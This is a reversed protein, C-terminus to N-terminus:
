DSPEVSHAVARRVEDTTRFIAPQTLREVSGNSHLLYSTPLVPPAQLAAQLAGSPDAVSPYRVDLDALLTLADEARDQVNIGIVPITDPQETYAALVPIEERCPLCWSAWLNLLAPRGALAAALNVTGPAGLCPVIVGTLPGSPVAGPRPAPCPQLDARQRLPALEADDPPPSDATTTVGIQPPGARAPTAPQPSVAHPWLALVGAVALVVVVITWRIESRM